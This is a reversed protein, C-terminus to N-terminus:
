LMKWIKEKFEKSCRDSEDIYKKIKMRCSNDLLFYKLDEDNCFEFWDPKISGVDFKKPDILFKLFQSEEAYKMIIDKMASDDSSQLTKYLAYICSNIDLIDKDEKKEDIKIGDIYGKLSEQNFIPMEYKVVLSACTDCGIVQPNIRRIMEVQIEPDVLPYYCAINEVESSIIEDSMNLQEISTIFSLKLNEKVLKPSLKRLLESTKTCGKQNTLSYDCAIRYLMEINKLKERSKITLLIINNLRSIFLKTTAMLQIYIKQECINKIIDEIYKLAEEDLSISTIQYRKFINELDNSTVMFIMLLLHSKDLKDIRPSAPTDNELMRYPIAHGLLIGTVGNVFTANSYSTNINIIFNMNSLDFVRFIKDELSPIFNNRAIGGKEINTKTDLIETVLNTTDHLLELYNHYNVLNSLIKKINSDIQCKLLISELDINTAQESRKIVDLIPNNWGESWVANRLARRNYMCIFYLIYKGREWYQDSYQEYCSYADNFKGLIYYAFPLELDKYSFLLSQNPSKSKITDSAAQYNFEYLYDVSDKKPNEVKKKRSAKGILNLENITSIGNRFAANRLFSIEKGKARFLKIIDSFTKTNEVLDAIYKSDIRIGKFSFSLDSYDSKPWLYKLGTAIFPMEQWCAYIREYLTDILDFSSLTGESYNLIYKLQKYLDKGADDSIRDLDTNISDCAPIDKLLENPLWTVNIGKNKFYTSYLIDNSTHDALLYIPQFDEKLLRQISNIIIKLNMDNFSFGVFLIVKTAFLSQVFANILPYNDKYNYYDNETLVINKTDFDGHMKILLSTYQAYPLDTDEKITQYQSGKANKIAQELLDDYNTTVIHCPRLGLIADHIPNPTVKGYRLELRIKELYEKHGRSDKYLQTIKLYDNEDKLSEPLEQKLARILQEWSPVESNMSVGAGVFIVLKNNLSAESIRKINALQIPDM